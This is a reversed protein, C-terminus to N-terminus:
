MDDCAFLLLASSSFCHARRHMCARSARVGVCLAGKNSDGVSTGEARGWRVGQVARVMRLRARVRACLRLRLFLARAQELLRLVLLLLHLLLALLVVDLPSVAPM